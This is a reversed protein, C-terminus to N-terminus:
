INQLNLFSELALHCLMDILVNESSILHRPGVQARSIANGLLVMPRVGSDLLPSTVRSLM